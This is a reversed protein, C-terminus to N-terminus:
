VKASVIELQTKDLPLFTPSTNDLYWSFIGLVLAYKYHTISEKALMFM